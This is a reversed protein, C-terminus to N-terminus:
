CNLQATASLLPCQLAQLQWRPSKLVHNHLSQNSSNCCFTTCYTHSPIAKDMQSIHRARGKRGRWQKTAHSCSWSTKYRHALAWFSPFCGPAGWCHYGGGLEPASCFDAKWNKFGVAAGKRQRRQTQPPWKAPIAKLYVSSNLNYLMNETEAKVNKHYNTSPSGAPSPGDM